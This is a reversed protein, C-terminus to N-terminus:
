ILDFRIVQRMINGNLHDGKRIIELDRLYLDGDKWSFDSSLEDFDNELFSFENIDGHGNATVLFGAVRGLPSPVM